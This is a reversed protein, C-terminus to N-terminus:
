HKWRDVQGRHSTKARLSPPSVDRRDDLTEGVYNRTPRSLRVLVKLRHLTHAPTHEPEGLDLEAGIDTILTEFIEDFDESDESDDGECDLIYQKFREKFRNNFKSKYTEKM